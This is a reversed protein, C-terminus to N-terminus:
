DPRRRETPEQCAEGAAILIDSFTSISSTDNDTESLLADVTDAFDVRKSPKALFNWKLRRGQKIKKPRQIRTPINLMLVVGAHDSDIGDDWRRCDTVFKCGEPQVLWHDLQHSVPSLM